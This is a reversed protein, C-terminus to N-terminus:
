VRALEVLARGPLPRLVVTRIEAPDGQCPEILAGRCQWSCDMPESIKLLISGNFGPVQPLEGLDIIIKEADVRLKVLQHAAAQSWCAPLDAALMCDLSRAKKELMEAWGDVISSNRAPDHHLLNSWHLPLIPNQFDWVPAAAAAHWPVPSLGRELLRVGCEWTIKGHCPEAYRRARSFATVVYQVGYEHLIAQISEEGNGFSHLLAPPLFLRPFGPLKNQELIKAFADLHSTVLDRPRMRCDQNHFEAREMRSDRWFEHCLGHCAIELSDRHDRLFEAAGDLWPGRNLRNDWGDGMWTAGAVGRLINTRDWEGLVMGLAIRMNLRKALRALARYDELCHRRSFGNRFPENDASGDRGQWWGVDEVVVFIPMPLSVTLNQVTVQM